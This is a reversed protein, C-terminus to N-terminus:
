SKRVKKRKWREEKKRSRRSELTRRGNTRYKGIQLQKRMKIMETEKRVM